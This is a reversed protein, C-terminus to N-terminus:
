KKLIRYITSHDEGELRVSVLYIGPVAGELGILVSGKNERSDSRVLTGVVSYIRVSEIAKGADIRIYDGAPNPYIRLADKSARGEPTDSSTLAEEVVVKGKMGLSKHPDCHYNYIGPVTFVFSYTWGAGVETFFSEPNNPYADQTGNVNHTGQTNTWIVTDGAQITLSDPIFVNSVVEIAHSVQGQTVVTILIMLSAMGFVIMQRPAHYFKKMRKM